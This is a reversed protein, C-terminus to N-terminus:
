TQDYIYPRMKIALGSHEPGDEDDEEHELEEANDRCNGEPSEDVNEHNHRNTDYGPNDLATGREGSRM